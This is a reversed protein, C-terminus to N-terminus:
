MLYSELEVDQIAKSAVVEEFLDHNQFVDERLHKYADLFAGIDLFSSHFISEIDMDHFFMEDSHFVSVYAQIQSHLFSEMEM